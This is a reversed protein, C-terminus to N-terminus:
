NKSLKSQFFTKDFKYRSTLTDDNKMNVYQSVSKGLEAYFKPLLEHYKPINDLLPNLVKQLENLEYYLELFNFKTNLYRMTNPFLYDLTNIYYNLFLELRPYKVESSINYFCSFIDPNKLIFDSPESHLTEYEVQGVFHKLYNKHLDHMETKSYFECRNLIVYVGLEYKLKSMLELTEILQEESEEPFAFIFSARIKMKYKNIIKMNKLMVDLNLNKKMIKQMETSGSEAGIFIDTCGAEKMTKIMEEDLTDARSSCGWQIDLNNEKISKCVEQVYDKNLTFLDHLFNFKKIGTTRIYHKIEEILKQVSKVRFKRNWYFSTSCYYCSFPCGRGVELDILHIKDEIFSLDLLPLTEIDYFDQNKHAIIEGQDIYAIGCIGDLNKENILREFLEIIYGESEGLCIFDIWGCKRLTEEYTVTAQPGGLYVTVNNNHEKLLKALELTIDYSNAITSFGVFDAEYSLIIDMIKSYAPDNKFDNQTIMCDHILTNFDLIEISLQNKFHSELIMKLNLLGIPYHYYIDFYPFDIFLVKIM